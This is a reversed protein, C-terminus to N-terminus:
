VSGPIRDKALQEMVHGPRKRAFERMIEVEKEWQEKDAPKRWRATHRDMEPSLLAHMRDIGALMREASFPGEILGIAKRRFIEEMEPSRMLARFLRAVPSPDNRVRLFLDTDAGAHAGFSLDSDGMIFYWRGDRVGEGPTGTYRWYKVNQQPWDMNGLIMQSAMYTLFGDVDLAASLRDIHGPDITEAEKLLRRFNKVEIASGRYLEGADELITIEEETIGHRLAIEDDDIRERLHHVGWYAGNIYVVCPWSRSTAFPLDACLMNQFADRMMAKVQDNGAARLVMSRHANGISGDNWPLVPEEFILRLAHQPFGRTMQGHIRINLDTSMAPAGESTIMEMYAPREWQRGRGMFNGPYKWWRPDRAYHADTELQDDMIANGVVMIGKEPDFLGEHDSVLAIVPLEGHDQFLYTRTRYPGVRGLPDLEAARVVRASPLGEKPHRWKMSLPIALTRSTCSRDPTAILDTSSGEEIPLDCMGNIISLTGGKAAISIVEGEKIFANEPAIVPLAGTNRQLPREEQFTAGLLVALMIGAVLLVAGKSRMKLPSSCM